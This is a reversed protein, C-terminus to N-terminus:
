KSHGYERRYVDLEKLREYWTKLAKKARLNPAEDLEEKSPQLRRESTREGTVTICARDAPAKPKSKRRTPARRPSREKPASDRRSSAVPLSAVPPFKLNSVEEETNEEPNQIERFARDAPLPKRDEVPAYGQYWHMPYQNSHLYRHDFFHFIIPQSVGPHPGGTTTLDDHGSVGTDNYSACDPFSAVPSYCPPEMIPMMDEVSPGPLHLTSDFRMSSDQNHSNGLHRLDSRLSTANVGARSSIPSELHQDYRAMDAVIPSDYSPNRSPHLPSSTLREGHGPNWAPQQSEEDHQRSDAEDPVCGDRGDDNWTNSMSRELDGFRM